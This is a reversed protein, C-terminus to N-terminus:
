KSSSSIDQQDIVVINKEPDVGLKLRLNVPTSAQPTTPNGLMAKLEVSVTNADVREQKLEAIQVTSGQPLASLQRKSLPFKTEQWYRELLDPAMSAMAHVQSFRYSTASFDLMEAVFTRVFKDVKGTELPDSLAPVAAPAHSNGFLKMGSVGAGIGIAFVSLAIGLIPVMFARLVSGLMLKM